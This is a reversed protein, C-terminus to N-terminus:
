RLEKNYPKIYKAPTGAYVGPETIDNMVFSNAGIIVNDCINVQSRIVANQWLYCNKGIYVGGGLMVGPALISNEGVYCNHGVNCMVCIKANKKVITSDMGARHVISLAEIDVDDEIVVNGMHKLNIREGDVSDYYTNGHVGIIAKPHINANESIINEKPETHRYIYNHIVGFVYPVNESTIPYVTINDPLFIADKSAIVLLEKNCNELLNLTSLKKVFTISKDIPNYVSCTQKYEITKEFLYSFKDMVKFMHKEKM